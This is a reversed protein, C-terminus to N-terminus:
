NRKWNKFDIWQRSEVFSSANIIRLPPKHPLDLLKRSVQVVVELRLLAPTTLSEHFLAQGLGAVKTEVEKGLLNLQLLAVQVAELEGQEPNGSESVLELEM